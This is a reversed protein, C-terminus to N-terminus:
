PRTGRRHEIATLVRAVHARLNALDGDNDIVFDARARKLALPLQASERRDLEGPKWGRRLVARAERVKADAEVFVLADCHTTLGHQADNELLLPVDLVIRPVRNRRAAALRAAIHERVAPHVRAELDRRAAPEAFVRAALEARDVRGERVCHPGFRGAIWEQLEPTDLVDHAIRDADIIEGGNGALERAVESKGSAIGGLVGIM